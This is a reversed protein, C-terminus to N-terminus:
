PVNFMGEFPKLFIGIAYINEVYNARKEGSEVREASLAM